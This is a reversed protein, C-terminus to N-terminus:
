QQLSRFALLLSVASKEGAWQLIKMYDAATDKFDVLVLTENGDTGREPLYEGSTSQKFLAFTYTGNEEKTISLRKGLLKAEITQTV